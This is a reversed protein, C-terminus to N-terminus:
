QQIIRCTAGAMSGFHSTLAVVLQEVGSRATWIVIRRQALHDQCVPKGMKQNSLGEEKSAIVVTNPALAYPLQVLSTPSQQILVQLSAVVMQIGISSIAIRKMSVFITANKLLHRPSVVLCNRFTDSRGRM